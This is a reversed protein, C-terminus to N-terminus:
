TVGMNNIMRNLMDDLTTIVRAAANYSQQYIILNTTEEDLSVASTSKRQTDISGLLSQRTDSVNKTTNATIALHDAISIITDKYGSIDLDKSLKLAVTNNGSDPSAGGLNIQSSSGAISYISQSVADSIKFNGATVRSYDYGTYTNTGDTWTTGSLPADFFIVDNKSATAGSPYTYGTQHINNINKAINRVLTNLQDMYYPIGPNNVDKSTVMQMNAYLQGGTVTGKEISLPKTGGAIELNNRSLDAWAAADGGAATNATAASIGTVLSIGNYLVDVQNPDTGNVPTTITASTFSKM